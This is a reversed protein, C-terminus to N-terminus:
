KKFLSSWIYRTITNETINKYVKKNNIKFWNLQEEVNAIKGILFQSNNKYTRLMRGALKKGWGTKYDVKYKELFTFVVDAGKHSIKAKKKVQYNEFNIKKM